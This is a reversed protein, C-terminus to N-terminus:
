FHLESLEESRDLMWCGADLMWCGADLMWCGADLRWDLMWGTDLWGADFGWVRKKKGEPLSITL